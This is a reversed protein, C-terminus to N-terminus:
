FSSKALLLQSPVTFTTRTSSILTKRGTSDRSAASQGFWGLAHSNHICIRMTEAYGKQVLLPMPRHTQLWKRDVHLLHRLTCM